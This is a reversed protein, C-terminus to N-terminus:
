KNFFIEPKEDLANCLLALNKINPYSRGTEWYAVTRSVIRSGKIKGMKFALDDISMNKKERLQKIIKYNFKM